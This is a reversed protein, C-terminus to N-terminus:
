GFILTGTFNKGHLINGLNKLNTGIIYTKIKKDMIIKAATQDLIFHQGPKFTIQKAKRYFGEWSIKPILKASKNEMPNKDYLGSVNTINIFECKLHYSIQAATADSTQHPKYELAGCFIIDRQKLMNELQHLTHPIGEENEYGFFYSMFRANHRTISIGAYSQLKESKGIKKLGNIYVRAVSGGGCVIVFKYKKFHKLIMRRFRVLFPVNIEGNKLIQSGGLSIVVVEKKM